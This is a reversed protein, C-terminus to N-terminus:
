EQANPQKEIEKLYKDKDTLNVAISTPTFKYPFSVTAINEDFGSPMKPFPQMESLQKLAEDDLSKNSAHQTITAESLKGERDLVLKITVSDQFKEPKVQYKWNNKLHEMLSRSYEKKPNKEDAGMASTNLLLFTSFACVTLLSLYRWM